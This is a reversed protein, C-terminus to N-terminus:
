EGKIKHTLSNLNYNHWNILYNLTAVEEDSFKVDIHHEIFYYIEQLENTHFEIASPIWPCYKSIVIKQQICMLSLLVQQLKALKNTAAIWDESKPVPNANAIDYDMKVSLTSLIIIYDNLPSKLKLYDMAPERKNLFM